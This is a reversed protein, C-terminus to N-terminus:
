EDTWRVVRFDQEVQDLVLQCNECFYPAKRGVWQTAVIWGLAAGEVPSEITTPYRRLAYCLLCQRKSVPM